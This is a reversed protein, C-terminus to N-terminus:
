LMESPREEGGPGLLEMTSLREDLSDSLLPLNSPRLKGFTVCGLM